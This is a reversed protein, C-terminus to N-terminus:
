NINIFFYYLQNIFLETCFLYYTENKKRRIGSIERIELM